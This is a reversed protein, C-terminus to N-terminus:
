LTNGPFLELDLQREPFREVIGDYVAILFIWFCFNVDAASALGAIFYGDDHRILSFSEVEFPNNTIAGGQVGSGFMPAADLQHFRVHVIHVKFSAPRFDM